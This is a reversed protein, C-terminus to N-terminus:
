YDSKCVGEVPFEWTNWLQEGSKWLSIWLKWMEPFALLRNIWLIWLRIWMGRQYNKEASFDAFGTFDVTQENISNGSLFAGRHAPSDSFRIVLILNPNGQRHAFSDRRHKNPKSFPISSQSWSMLTTAMCWRPKKSRKRRRIRAFLCHMGMDTFIKVVADMAADSCSRLVEGVTMDKNIM